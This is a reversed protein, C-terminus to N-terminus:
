FSDTSNISTALRNAVAIEKSAVAAALREVERIRFRIRHDEAAKIEEAKALASQITNEHSRLRRLNEAPATGNLAIARFRPRLGFYWFGIAILAVPAGFFRVAFDLTRTDTFHWDDGWGQWRMSPVNWYWDVM